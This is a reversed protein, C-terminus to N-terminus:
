CRKKRWLLYLNHLTYVIGALGSFAGVSLNKVSKTSELIKALFQYDKYAFEEYRSENLLKGAYAFTLVIGSLLAPALGM